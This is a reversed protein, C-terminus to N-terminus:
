AILPRHPHQEEVEEELFDVIQPCEEVGEELPSHYSDQCSDGEQLEAEVVVKRSLTPFFLGEERRRGWVYICVFVCVCFGVQPFSNTSFLTDGTDVSSGSLSFHVSIISFM